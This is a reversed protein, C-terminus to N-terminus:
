GNKLTENIERLKENAIDLEEMCDTFNEYTDNMLITATYNKYTELDRILRGNQLQCKLFDSNDCREQICEPCTPCSPCEKEVTKIITNNRDVYVIKPQCGILLLVLAIM